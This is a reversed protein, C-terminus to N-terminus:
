IHLNRFGVFNSSTNRVKPRIKLANQFFVPEPFDTPSVARVTKFDYPNTM